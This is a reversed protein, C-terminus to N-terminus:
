EDVSNVLQVDWHFIREVNSEHLKDTAVLAEVLNAFYGAVRSPDDRLLLELATELSVQKNNLRVWM